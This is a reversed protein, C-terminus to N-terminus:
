LVGRLEGSMLYGAIVGSNILPHIHKVKTYVGVIEKKVMDCLFWVVDTSSFTGVLARFIHYKDVPVIANFSVAVITYDSIIALKNFVYCKNDFLAYRPFCDVNAGLFSDLTVFCYGFRKMLERGQVDCILCDNLSTDLLVWKTPAAELILTM